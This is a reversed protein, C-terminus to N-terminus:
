RMFFVNPTRDFSEFRVLTGGTDFVYPSYQWRALYDTVALYQRESSAEICITPKAKEIMLEAGRLAEPEAGEIDLKIFDVYRIRDEQLLESISYARVSTGDDANMASSVSASVPGLNQELNQQIFLSGFENWLAGEFIYVNNFNNLKVNERLCSVAYPQPEFAYVQGTPGVRSAFACTYIGQNAGGDIVCGGRAILQHGFELLQEYYKRQVFIGASGYSRQMAQLKLKFSDEGFQVSFPRPWDISQRAVWECGRVLTRVPEKSFSKTKFVRSYYM